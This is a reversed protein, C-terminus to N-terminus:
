ADASEEQQPALLPAMATLIANAEAMDAARAARLGDIEAQMATNILTADGVGAANAARLAGNSDRLQQNAQRLRQLELDLADVQARTEQMLTQTSALEEAQREKLARLREELQASVTKEDELAQKLGELEAPDAGGLNEMGAAIRDMAVSIRQGFEDIDSM